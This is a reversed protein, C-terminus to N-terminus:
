AEKERSSFPFEENIRMTSRSPTPKHLTQSDSEQEESPEESDSSHMLKNYDKQFMQEEYRRKKDEGKIKEYVQNIHVM